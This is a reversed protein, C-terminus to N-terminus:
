QTADGAKVGLENALAILAKGNETDPPFAELGKQLAEAAKDPEALMAYSRVLRKWGEINDPDDKLRSDLSDVMTRIMAARDTDSLEAAAAVDDVTPSGPAKAQQEKAEKLRAIQADTVGIWPADAPSDKKLAEFAAIAADFKGDQGDALALYFRARPDGPVLKLVNAFAERTEATARGQNMAVLAEALGGYRRADAGLIRIANRWANVSDAFRGNGLYIPALVEWGRGDDPREELRLEAKRILINSDPDASDFRAALPFDPADPIGIRAYLLIGGLPLLLCLFLTVAISVGKGSTMGAKATARTAAILRRAIETRAQAAAEGEILGSKEDRDIESLQDRYVEADNREAGADGKAKRAFLPLCILLASALAIAISIIWFM